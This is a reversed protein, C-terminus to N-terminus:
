RSVVAYGAREGRAVEWESEALWRRITFLAAVLYGISGPIWMIMGALQQDALPSLGWTASQTAYDSYWPSRAFTMLAGLVGTHVATTFLLLISLGRESRRAPHLVAWWFVIGTALFSVHQAAHIADNRVAAEFLVPVHWLWIALGHVLWAIIPSTIFGSLRRVVPRRAVRAVPLRWARPMMWLAVVLPRGIVILPAAVTMLLEHQVMHMSFLQESWEHFPPLVAAAAITVGLVFPIASRIRRVRARMSPVRRGVGM